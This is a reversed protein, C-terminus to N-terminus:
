KLIWDAGSTIQYDNNAKDINIDTLGDAVNLGVHNYGGLDTIKTNSILGDIHVGNQKQTAFENLYSALNTFLDNKIAFDLTYIYDTDTGTTINNRDGLLAIKNTGNGTDVTNKDGIVAISDTGSGGKVVNNDGIVTITNTGSAAEIRNKDGTSTVTDNGSGTLIISSDTDNFLNDNATGGVFLNESGRTTSKNTGFSSIAAAANSYLNARSIM